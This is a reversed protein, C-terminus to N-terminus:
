DWWASVVVQEPESGGMAYDADEHNHVRVLAGWEDPEFIHALEKAASVNPCLVYLTDANWIEDPLDRLKILGAAPLKGPRSICFRDVMVAEWLDKHALLAAVVREGKLDNHQTRRLLELQIEQLSAKELAKQQFPFHIPKM